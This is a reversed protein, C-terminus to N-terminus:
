KAGPSIGSTREVEISLHNTFKRIEDIEFRGKMAIYLLRDFEGTGMNAYLIIMASYEDIEEIHIQIGLELSVFDNEISNGGTYMADNLYSSLCYLDTALFYSPVSSVTNCDLNPSPILKVIVDFWTTIPDYSLLEFQFSFGEGNCKVTQPLNVM